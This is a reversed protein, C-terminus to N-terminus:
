WSGSAGGGGFGGGGGSFGSFGGGSWGSSGSDHSGWAAGSSAGGVFMWSDLWDGHRQGRRVITLILAFILALFVFLLLLMVVAEGTGDDSESSSGPSSSPVAFTPDIASLMDNVGATIAQDVDGSKMRPSITNRIISSTEADTLIAELGYGVEIRLKHDKMFVFLVAGNDKGKKGVGWKQAANVTWAELSQDGTTQDIYVIVQDGTKKEFNGLESELASSASASLAHANDTVYTTPAPPIAVTAALILAAIM